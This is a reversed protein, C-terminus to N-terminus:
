SVVFPKDWKGFEIGIYHGVDFYDSQVDSNNYNGTNMIDKINELISVLESNNIDEKIYFENLSHRGGNISVLDIPASKITLTLKSYNQVSLSYKWTKPMVEKLKQAIVKKKEQNMYAM